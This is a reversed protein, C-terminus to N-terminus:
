LAVRFSLTFCLLDAVSHSYCAIFPNASTIVIGIPPSASSSPCQFLLVGAETLEAPEREDLCSMDGNVLNAATFVESNSVSTSSGLRFTVSLVVVVLSRIEVAISFILFECSM